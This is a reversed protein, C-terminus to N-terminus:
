KPLHYASARRQWIEINDFKTRTGNGTYAKIVIKQYAGFLTKGIPLSIYRYAGSTISDFKNAELFVKRETYNYLYLYAKVSDTVTLPPIALIYEWGSTFQMLGSLIISDNTGKLSDKAVDLNTVFGWDPTAAVSLDATNAAFVKLSLCLLLVLLTKM